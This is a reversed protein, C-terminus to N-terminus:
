PGWRGGWFLQVSRRVEPDQGPSSSLEDHQSLSPEAKHLEASYENCCWPSKKTHQYHEKRTYIQIQLCKEPLSTEITKMKDQTRHGCMASIETDKLEVEQQGAPFLKLYPWFTM